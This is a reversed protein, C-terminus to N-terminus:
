LEEESEASEESESGSDDKGDVELREIRGSEEIGGVGEQYFRETGEGVAAFLDFGGTGVGSFDAWWM